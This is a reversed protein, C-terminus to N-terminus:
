DFGEYDTNAVLRPDIVNPDYNFAKLRSVHYEEVEHTFLNQVKYVEGNKELV